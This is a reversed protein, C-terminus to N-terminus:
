KIKYNLTLGNQWKFNKNIYLGKIGIGLKVKKWKKIVPEINYKIRYLKDFFAIEVDIFEWKIGLYISHKYEKIYNMSFDYGIKLIDKIPYYITAYLLKMDKEESYINGIQGYNFSIKETHAFYNIGNDREYSATLVILFKQITTKSRISFYYDFSITDFKASRTNVHFKITSRITDKQPYAKLSFTVFILTLIYKM